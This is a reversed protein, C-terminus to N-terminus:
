LVVPLELCCCLLVEIALYDLDILALNHTTTSHQVAHYPCSARALVVVGPVIQVIDRPSWFLVTPSPVIHQWVKDLYATLSKANHLNFRVSM